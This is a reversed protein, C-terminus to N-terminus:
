ECRTVLEMRGYKYFQLSVDEGVGKEKLNKILITCLRIERQKIKRKNKLEDKM